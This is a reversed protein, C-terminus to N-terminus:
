KEALVRQIAEWMDRHDQRLGLASARIRAVEDENQEVLRFHLYWLGAALSGDKDYVFLPQAAVNRVLANFEDAQKRDLTLPSVALSLYKMGRKEVQKQDADTDEGPAHVQIVTRYGKAQLWDLGEDLAPRLGAAVNDAVSTFRPIGVPLSTVPAKKAEFQPPAMSPSKAGSDVLPEPPLLLVKDDAGSTSGGSTSGGSTSGEKQTGPKWRYESQAFTDTLGQGQVGVGPGGPPMPPPPVMPFPNSNPSMPPQGNNPTMPLPNASPAYGPPAPAPTVPGAPVPTVTAPSVPVPTPVVAAPQQQKQLGPFLRAGFPKREGGTTQCGVALCAAWLSFALLRHM